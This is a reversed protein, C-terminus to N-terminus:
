RARRLAGFGGLGLGALGAVLGAIALVRATSDSGSELDQVKAQLDAVTQDLTGSLTVAEPFQLETVDEVSDFRGPGSEFSEDIPTGEIEGFIRFTYDGVVTPIFKAVYAGPEDELATFNLEKKAAGGGVIVEVKLSEDLGEVPTEDKEVSLFAGNLQNVLAPEELFGVELSYDGVSRQEHASAAGASILVLALVGLGALPFCALRRFLM